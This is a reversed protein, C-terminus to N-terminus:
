MSYHMVYYTVYHMVYRAAVQAPTAYHMVYRAAVQAPTAYHMAHTVYHTAHHTVYPMAHNTVYPMFYHMGYTPAVQAPPHSLALQSVHHVQLAAPTGLLRSM